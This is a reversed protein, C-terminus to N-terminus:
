LFLIIHLERKDSETSEISLSNPAQIKGVYHITGLLFPMECHLRMGTTLSLLITKGEELKIFIEVAPIM